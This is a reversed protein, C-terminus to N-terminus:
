ESGVSIGAHTRSEQQMQVSPPSAAAHHVQMCPPKAQWMIEKGVSVGVGGGKWAVCPPRHDHEAPQNAHQTFVLIGQGPHHRM